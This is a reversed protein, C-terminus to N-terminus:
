LNHEKFAHVISEVLPHRIIDHSTLRTISIKPIEQLIELAVSLGSRVNGKLDIQTVDGTLVMKSNFGMRTLFMKMQTVTTNQAEDLIIYADNLTRGRMYALPAIEIIGKEIYKETTEKGLMEYLADYLPILYPDVKEKIEGPLYGLSEGAEVVPRTLIIKKVKGARLFGVAHIVTLYTKGTGAPGVILTMDYNELNKVLLLQNLTKPYILKGELTKGIITKSLRKIEHLQSADQLNILQVVVDQSLTVKQQVMEYMVGLIASVIHCHKEEGTITYNEGRFVIQVGYHEELLRLNKDEVGNMQASAELSPLIGEVQYTIQKM